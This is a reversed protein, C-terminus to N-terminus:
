PAASVRAVMYVTSDDSSRLTIDLANEFRYLVTLPAMSRVVSAPIPEYYEMEFRLNSEPSYISKAFYEKQLIQEVIAWSVANNVHDLVDLDTM